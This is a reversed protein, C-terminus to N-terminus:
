KLTDSDLTSNLLIKVTILIDQNSILETNWRMNGGFLSLIRKAYAFEIVDMSYDESYRKVLGLRENVNDSKIVIDFTIELQKEQVIELNSIDAGILSIMGIRKSIGKFLYYFVEVLLSNALAYKTRFKNRDEIKLLDESINLRTMANTIANMLNVAELDASDFKNQTVMAQIYKALENAKSIEHLSTAVLDLRKESSQTEKTLESLTDIAKEQHKVINESLINSFATAAPIVMEAEKSATHYMLLTLTAFFVIAICIIAEAVWWGATAFGFNAKLIVVLIWVSALAAGISDFTLEGGSAGTSLIIYTLLVYLAIYSMGLMISPGILGIQIEPFASYALLRIYEGIVIVSPPIIFGLLLIRKVNKYRFRAPNLVSRVAIILMIVSFISGVIYSVKSESTFGYLPTLHTVVIAIESIMWYLLLFIIALQGPSYKIKLKAYLSYVSLGALFAGGLHVIVIAGIDIIQGIGIFGEIIQAFIFPIVAFLSTILTVGYAVNDHVGLDLLFPYSIAVNAIILGIAMLIISIIWYSSPNILLLLHNIIAGAFFLFSLAMRYPDCSSVQARNRYMVIAAIVFSITAVAGVIYGASIFYIDSISQRAAAMLGVFIATSIIILIFPTSRREWISSEDIQRGSLTAYLVMMLGTIVLAVLNLFIGSAQAHIVPTENTLIYFIAAGAFTISAYGSGTFLINNSASPDIRIRNAVSVTITVSLFALISYYATAAGPTDWPPNSLVIMICIPISILLGLAIRKVHFKNKM